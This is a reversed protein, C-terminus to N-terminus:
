KPQLIEKLLEIASEETPDNTGLGGRFAKSLISNKLLELNEELTSIKEEAAIEKELINKLIGLIQIQEEIPALPIPLSKVQTYNLAQRTMGTQEEVILKQIFPSNLWFQPLEPIINKKFRIACVHQNINCPLLSNDLKSARGISAGTINLLTEDGQLQTRKMNDYIEKSIYAIDDIVMENRLVNQSRIFPIGKNLYVSKGGKPTSGSSVFESIEGITTWKWGTPIEYLNVKNNTTHKEKLKNQATFEQRWKKTLDGRFAKSIMSARRLEFTEKCEDIIQKAQDIKNLLREVKGIIRKQENIPPLPIKLDQIRHIALKPQSTAKIALNIQSKVTKSNLVYFLFKNSTFSEINTIKAANETLNAGNLSTPILGVKGITGAISIYVDNSSITYRSIKKYTEETIYKLDTEDISGEKFDTVRLYPHKTEFEVFNEGKPLRKGGKVDALSKINTWVWNKPVTHPQEEVQILSENIIEEITTLKKEEM